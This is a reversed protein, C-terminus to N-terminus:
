KRVQQARNTSRVQLEPIRNDETTKDKSRRERKETDTTREERRNSHGTTREGTTTTVPTQQNSRQQGPRCALFAVWGRRRGRMKNIKRTKGEGVAM